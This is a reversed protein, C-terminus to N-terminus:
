PTVNLTVSATNGFSTPANAAATLEHPGLNTAQVGFYITAVDKGNPSLNDLNCDLTSTGTCGTGRTRAPPGVLHLEPPLHVLLHVRTAGVTGVDTVDIQLNVMGGLYISPAPTTIRTRLDPLGILKEGYPYDTIALVNAVVILALCAAVGLAAGRSRLTGRARRGRWPAGSAALALASAACAFVLFAAWWASTIGLRDLVTPAIARAFRSSGLQGPVHALEGWIGGWVISLRSWAITLATTAFVSWGGLLLTLRPLRAFAPALGLALFPLGIVLFRPGPSRGGYTDYYGCAAIVYLAVIAAAAVAEARHTRGLWVLGPVALCLVPSIVLLGGHWSFVKYIAVLHPVGIGFFGNQQGTAFEPAVYRYSLHRPSGFAAWDYAGLLAVGPALGALYSPLTRRGGGAALLYCLVVALALGGEYDVLLAASGVLGAPFPRRAWALLFTGFVLLAAPIHAFGSAALPAVLTGLAFTVMAVGGFGPRLGEGVRGLLFALACFAVGVSLLRAGWLRLDDESWTQPEGPRLLAVAPVELVSLGPAKDSYLHGGFSARDETSSLCRDNSVHAHLLAESLCLRSRDQETVVHIPTLAAVAVLV